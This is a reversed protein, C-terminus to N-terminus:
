PQGVPLVSVDSYVVTLGAADLATVGPTFTVGAGTTVKILGFATLGDPVDPVRSRGGFTTGMNAAAGMGKAPDQVIKHGDYSGQIVKVAGAADLALVIYCTKLEPVPYAGNAAGFVNHTPALPIAAVAAKSKLFGNSSYVITATTKATALGAGGLALVGASFCMFGSLERVAEHHADSLRSM